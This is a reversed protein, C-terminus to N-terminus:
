GRTELDRPKLVPLGSIEGFVRRGADERVTM